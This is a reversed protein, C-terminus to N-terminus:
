LGAAPTRPRPRPPAAGVPGFGGFIGGAPKEGPQRDVPVTILGSVMQKRIISEEGVKGTEIGLREAAKASLIVRKVTSGSIAELTVPTNKGAAKSGAPDAANAAAPALLLVAVAAAAAALLTCKAPSPTANRDARVAAMHKAKM